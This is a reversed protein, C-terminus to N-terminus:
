EYLSPTVFTMNIGDSKMKRILEKYYANRSDRQEVTVPRRMNADYYNENIDSSFGDFGALYVNKVGCAKLLNFAIVSSSDHTKEDVNIWKRYDVVKVNGRGGKSVASTTIVHKNNAIANHYVDARTTLLYDVSYDTTLNLGITFIDSQDIMDQIKEYYQGITKGPAILLVSKDGIEAKLDSVTETDDITKSQNYELYLREAYEKDFSIKKDESIM